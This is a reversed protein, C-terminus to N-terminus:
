GRREALARLFFTLNAPREALRRVFYGYWQTGFPVYVRIHNGAEALRRQEADRIGYLMQYEFDDVGRGYERAMSPVAGLIEPDHSAVMPYGRGAMLIRLCQLYSDTVDDRDRFAVSAPEAYAGKCLRIRAGSAAFEACDARARKLHSQLVTGVWDFDVRLERVISLTSDTTTHDEADVTVWVGARQARECIARANELAIKEGDRPLAQGLASLKLSVELPRVAAATEGRGALADLLTLYAEVTADAADADTVDEGLYDISVLRHSDRLDGVATIVDATSEGPVFRRVVKRTVSMREAARRLGERRSAALIVPRAIKDFVSM